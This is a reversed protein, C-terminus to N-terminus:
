SAPWTRVRFWRSRPWSRRTAWARPKKSSSRSSRAVAILPRSPEVLPANISAESLWTRVAQEGHQETEFFVRKVLVRLYLSGAALVGLVILALLKAKRSM